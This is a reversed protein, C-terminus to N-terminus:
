PVPHYRRPIWRYGHGEARIHGLGPFSLHAGGVLYGQTAAQAMLKLRTKAARAPDSDFSITVKPHPFQVEACHVIDGWLLLRRGKSEVMYATHGPTHGHAPVTRIGPFLETTGSFTKVKKAKIYPDLPAHAKAGSKLSWALERKALYVVANPFVRHGGASLGGIHDGHTHTLLVADIQGPQYGSAKLNTLLRGTAGAPRQGTGTDVLVVRKGTDILFANVSTEIPLREHDRALIRRALQPKSLLKDMPGPFAGDNLATIVFDGLKMRYYGPAQTKTNAPAAPPPSAAPQAMASTAVCAALLAALPLPTPLRFSKTQM